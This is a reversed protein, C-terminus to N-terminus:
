FIINKLNKSNEFKLFFNGTFSNGAVDTAVLIQSKKRFKLLNENREAQLMDGHLLVIDFDKM